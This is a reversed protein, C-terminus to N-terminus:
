QHYYAPFLTFAGHFRNVGQLEEETAMMNMGAGGSGLAGGVGMGGLGLMSM